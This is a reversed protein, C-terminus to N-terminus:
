VQREEKIEAIRNLLIVPIFAHFFVIFPLLLVHTLVDSWKTIQLPRDLFTDVVANVTLAAYSVLGTILYAYAYTTPTM